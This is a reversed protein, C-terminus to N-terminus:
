KEEEAAAARERADEIIKEIMEDTIMKHPMGSALLRQIIGDRFEDDETRYGAVLTLRGDVKIWHYPKGYLHVTRKENEHLTTSM